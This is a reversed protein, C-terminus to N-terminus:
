HDRPSPSTYLLCVDLVHRGQLPSIHPEVRQWKWDCRWESDILIGGIDLPGKRWPRLALLSRNLAEQHLPVEDDPDIGFRPVNRNADFGQELEPLQALAELWRPYDGHGPNQFFAELKTKLENGWDSNGLQQQLQFYDNYYKIPDM